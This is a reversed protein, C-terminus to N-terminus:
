PLYIRLKKPVLKLIRNKNILILYSISIGLFAGFLIDSLYHIQTYFVSITTIAILLYLLTKTKQNLNKLFLISSAAVTAHTSPFSPSTKILLPTLSLTLFPRPRMILYKILYSFTTSIVVTLAFLLATRNQKKILLFLLTIIFFLILGSKAAFFIALPNILPLSFDKILSIIQSDFFFALLILILSTAVFLSLKLEREM